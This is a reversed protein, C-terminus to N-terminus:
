ACVESRPCACDDDDGRGPTAATDGPQASVGEGASSVRLPRLIYWCLGVAILLVVIKM